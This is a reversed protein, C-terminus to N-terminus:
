NSKRRRKGFYEALVVEPDNPDGEEESSSDVPRDDLFTNFQPFKQALLKIKRKQASTKEGKTQLDKWRGYMQNLDRKEREVEEKLRSKKKRM